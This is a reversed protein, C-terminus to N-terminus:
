LLSSVVGVPGWILSSTGMVLLLGGTSLNVAATTTQFDKAIEDAASLLSTSSFTAAMTAWSAAFVITWKRWLPISCDFGSARTETKTLESGSCPEPTGPAAVPAEIDTTSLKM